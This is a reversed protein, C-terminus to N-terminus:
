PRAQAAILRRSFAVVRRSAPGSWNAVQQSMWWVLIALLVVLALLLFAATFFVLGVLLERVYYSYLALPLIAIVLSCAYSRSTFRRLFKLLLDEKIARTSVPRKPELYALLVKGRGM